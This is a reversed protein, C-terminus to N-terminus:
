APEALDGVTEIIMSYAAYFASISIRSMALQVVDEVSCMSCGKLVRDM